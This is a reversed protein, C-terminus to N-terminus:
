RELWYLKMKKVLESDQVRNYETLQKTQRIVKNIDNLTGNNVETDYYNSEIHGDIKYETANKYMTANKYEENSKVYTKLPEANEQSVILRKLCVDLRIFFVFIGCHVFIGCFVFNVSVKLRIIIIIFDVVASLIINIVKFTILRVM